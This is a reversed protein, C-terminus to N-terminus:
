RLYKQQYREGLGNVAGDGFGSPWGNEDYGWAGMGRREGEDAGLRVNDMWDSGMYPTQLGGRAHMFYGGLGAADMAEIQRATEAPELKENWSWFPIPRYAKPPDAFKDLWERNM